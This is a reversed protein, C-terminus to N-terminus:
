SVSTVSRINRHLDVASSRIAKRSGFTGVREQLLLLLQAAKPWQRVKRPLKNTPWAPSGRQSPARRLVKRQLVALEPTHAATTTVQSKPCTTACRLSSPKRAASWSPTRSM